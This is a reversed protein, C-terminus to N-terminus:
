LGTFDLSPFAEATRAMITGLYKQWGLKCTKCIEAGGFQGSAEAGYVVRFTCDNCHGEESGQLLEFLGPFLLEEGRATATAYRGDDVLGPHLDVRNWLKVHQRANWIVEETEPKGITLGDDVFRYRRMMMHLPGGIYRTFNIACRLSADKAALTDLAWLAQRCGHYATKRVEDGAYAFTNHVEGEARHKHYAVADYMTLSIEGFIQLQQETFWRDDIDNCVLAAAITFRALGDCDRLRFWTRPAEALLNVYRCFLDSNRRGCSKDATFLLNARFERAMEGHIPLGGFLDELLDDINYGLVANEAVVDVLVGNYEAVTSIAILRVYAIYRVWNTFHPIICRTFAWATALTEDVFRDPLRTGRLDGKIEAPYFWTDSLSRHQGPDIGDRDCAELETATSPLTVSPPDIPEGM